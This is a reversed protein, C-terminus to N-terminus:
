KGRTLRVGRVEKYGVGSWGMGSTQPPPASLLDGLAFRCLRPLYIRVSGSKLAVRFLLM